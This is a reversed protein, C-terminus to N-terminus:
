PSVRSDSNFKLSPNDVLRLGFAVGRLRAPEIQLSTPSEDYHSRRRFSIFSSDISNPAAQSCWTASRSCVQSPTAADSETRRRDGDTEGPRAGARGQPMARAM